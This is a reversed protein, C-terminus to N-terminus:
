SGAADIESVCATEVVEGSTGFKKEGGGSVNPNFFAQLFAEVDVSGELLIRLLELNGAAM